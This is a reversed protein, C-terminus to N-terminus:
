GLDARRWGEPRLRRESGEELPAWALLLVKEGVEPFHVPDRDQRGRGRPGLVVGEGASATSSTTASGSGSRRCAGTPRPGSVRLRHAQDVMRGPQGSTREALSIGPEDPRAARGLEGGVLQCRASDAWVGSAVLPPQRRDVGGTARPDRRPVPEAPQVAHSGYLTRSWAHTLYLRERARTIGVYALRREEELEDPEGISRLHPFVGDELGILFVAPFELGKASHLTM